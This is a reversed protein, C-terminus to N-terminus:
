KKIFRKAKVFEDYFDTEQFSKLYQRLFYVKDINKKFILDSLEIAQELYINHYLYVNTSHPAKLQRKMIIDEDFKSSKCYNILAIIFNLNNQLIIPELTGNPTRFEITNDDYEYFRNTAHSFNVAQYRDFNNGRYGLAKRLRTLTFTDNWNFENYLAMYLDMFNISVPHAYTEVGARPNIYEGATFRYIINEYTAWLLLFNRWASKEGLIQTGIHIHSSSNRDIRANNEIINCVRTLEDWDKKRDTLVPSPIEGGNTLSKDKTIYWRYDLDELMLEEEIRKNNAHEFELEFGYTIRENLGLSKRFELYYQNILRLTDYLDYENFESLVINDNPNLYEFIEKNNWDNKSM